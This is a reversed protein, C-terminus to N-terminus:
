RETHQTAWTQKAEISRMRPRTVHPNYRCQGAARKSAGMEQTPQFTRAADRQYGCARPLVLEDIWGPPRCRKAAGIKPHSIGRSVGTTRLLDPHQIAVKSGCRSTSAQIAGGYPNPMSNANGRCLQVEQRSQHAPQCHM